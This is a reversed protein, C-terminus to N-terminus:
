ILESTVLLYVQFSFNITPDLSSALQVYIGFNPNQWYLYSEVYTVPNTQNINVTINGDTSGPCSPNNDITVSGITQSNVNLFINVCM